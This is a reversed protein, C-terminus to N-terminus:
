KAAHLHSQKSLLKLDSAMSGPEIALYEPGSNEQVGIDSAFVTPEGRHSFKLIDGSASPPMESVFLKGAGDFILDRPNPLGSVFTRKLGKATFKLIADATNPYMATSVFLNGSPDFALGFPGTEPKAFAEPGVFVTREGGPSFKYITQGTVDAAFLNGARDFALDFGHGPVFGFSGRGGNPTIKFIISVDNSPSIAMVYVNELCDIALGEAFFSDPITAFTSQRGDPMIKVITPHCWSNEECFNTAVFLNGVNDFALGRPQNLGYALMTQTGDPAYQYIAGAGNGPGGNISAFLDGPAGNVTGGSIATILVAFASSVVIGPLGVNKARRMNESFEDNEQKGVDSSKVFAPGPLVLVQCHSLDEM